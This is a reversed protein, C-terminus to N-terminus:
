KFTDIHRAVAELTWPQVRGNIVISDLYCFTDELQQDSCDKLAAAPKSHRKIVGKAEELTPINLERHKAYLGIIQIHRQKSLLFYDYDNSKFSVETADAVSIDNKDNKCVQKDSHKEPAERTGHSTSETTSRYNDLTQYKDYNLVIITMGRTSRKTSVMKCRKLWCICKKYEDHTAKTKLHVLDFQFFASGRSFRKTDKHNVEILIYLWIKLWKDPKFWIDSDQLKRAVLVAGNEIM